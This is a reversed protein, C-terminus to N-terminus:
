QYIYMYMLTVHMYKKYIYICELDLVIHGGTLLSDAWWQGADCSCGARLHIGCTRILNSTSLNYWINLCRDRLNSINRSPPMQVRLQREMVDWIHKMPNLDLSSPPWSILQFEVDHEQFLELVIRDKHCPANGAPDNWKCNTPNPELNSQSSKPVLFM